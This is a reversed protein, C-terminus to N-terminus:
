VISQLDNVIRNVPSAPGAGLAKQAQNGSTSHRGPKWFLAKSFAKGSHPPPKILRRSQESGQAEQLTGLPDDLAPLCSVLLPQPMQDQESILWTRLLEFSRGAGEGMGLLPGGSFVKFLTNCKDERSRTSPLM